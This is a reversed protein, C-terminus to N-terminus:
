ANYEQQCDFRIEKIRVNSFDVIKKTDEWLKRAHEECTKHMLDPTAHSRVQGQVQTSVPIPSGGLLVILIYVKIVM